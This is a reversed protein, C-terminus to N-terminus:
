TARRRRFSPRQRKQYFEINSKGRDCGTLFAQMVDQLLLTETSLSTAFSQATSSLTHIDNPISISWGDVLVQVVEAIHERSTQPSDLGMAKAFVAMSRAIDHNLTINRAKLNNTLESVRQDPNFDERSLLLKGAPQATVTAAVKSLSGHFLIASM